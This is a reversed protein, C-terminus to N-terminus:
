EGAQQQHVFQEIAKLGRPDPSQRLMAIHGGSVEVFRKPQLAAEYLERGQRFPVTYDDRAHLMLLPARVAGIKSLSDYRNRMLTTPLFPYLSRGAAPLSTYAAELILGGLDERGAVEAALNVAVGSGLSFGYLIIGEAPVGRNRLFAYAARADAYLGSESPVGESEGYGRYDFLLVNLGLAHLEPMLTLYSSINEGNGHFYLLWRESEGPIVWGTLKHGDEAELTVREYPLGYDAPTAVLGGTPFYVFRDEFTLLWAMLVSLLLM